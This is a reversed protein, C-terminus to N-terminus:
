IIMYFLTAAHRLTTPCTDLAVVADCLPGSRIDLPSPSRTESTVEHGRRRM